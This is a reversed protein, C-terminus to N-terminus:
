GDNHVEPISVKRVTGAKLARLKGILERDRPFLYCGFLQNQHMVLRGRTIARSLWSPHVGVWQAVEATTWGPLREGAQVRGLGIGIRYRQRLNLVITATFVSGRCASPSQPTKIGTM